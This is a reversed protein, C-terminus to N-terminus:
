RGCVLKKAGRLVTRVPQVEAVRVVARRVPKVEAVKVVASRVPKAEVVKAVVRVPAAVAALVPRACVGSACQAQVVSPLCLVAFVVMACLFKM